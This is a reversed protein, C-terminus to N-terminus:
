HGRRARETIVGHAAASLLLEPQPKGRGQRGQARAKENRRPVCM